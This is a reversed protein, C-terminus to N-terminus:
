FPILRGLGLPMDSRDEIELDIGPRMVWLLRVGAQSMMCPGLRDGNITLRLSHAQLHADTIPNDGCGSFDQSLVIVSVSDWPPEEAPGPLASDAIWYRALFRRWDSHSRIVAHGPGVPGFRDLHQARSVPDPSGQPCFGVEFAAAPQRYLWFVAPLDTTSPPCGTSLVLLSVQLLM